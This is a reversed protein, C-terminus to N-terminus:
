LLYHRIITDVWQIDLPHTKTETTVIMNVWPIIGAKYFQEECYLTKNVYGLDDMRGRHDWYIIKKTNVNMCTFDIAISENAFFHMEEYHYPVGYHELRALIDAESKSRVKLGPVVTTYILNEPHNNSKIYDAHKWVDADESKLLPRSALLKQIGPHLGKEPNTGSQRNYFQIISDIFKKEKKLSPLNREASMKAAMKIAEPMTDKNFPHEKKKGDPLISKKTYYYDTGKKRSILIGEPANAITYELENIEMELAKSRDILNLINIM